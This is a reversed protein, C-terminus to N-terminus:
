LIPLGIHRWREFCLRVVLSVPGSKSARQCSYIDFRLGATTDDLKHLVPLKVPLFHLSEKVFVEAAGVPIEAQGVAPPVLRVVGAATSPRAEDLKSRSDRDVLRHSPKPQRRFDEGGPAQPVARRDEDLRIDGALGGRVLIVAGMQLLERGVM